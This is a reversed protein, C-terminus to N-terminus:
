YIHKIVPAFAKTSISISDGVKFSKAEDESIAIEVIQNAISVVIVSLIDAKTIDLIEGFFSFKQSGSRSSFLNKPTGDYILKGSDLSIVRNSMKYIESIDHSVMITTSGFEKHLLLIREQLKKRMEPDLASLPEDMLLLKPKRMLARCLSVRQKQGGSLMDVRKDKVETLETMELLYLALENDKNAFLLNDKISMNSFLAYDQFVFGIDRKQPSLYCGGGLWCKSGVYIDGSANELGALIRL